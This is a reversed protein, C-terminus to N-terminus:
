EIVKEIPMVLIGSANKEKLRDITEWFEDEQIVTAISVMDPNSLPTITPSDLSPLITSIEEIKNKPANMIIYKTKKARIVSEMRMIVKELSLSKEQSINPNSILVAESHFITERVQLGNNKLTSGTSVLDCVLDAIGLKPAIEVSGSLDVLDAQLNKQDLYSQLIRPYSTAIRTNQLSSYEQYEPSAICLKCKGFGLSLRETLSYGSEVLTNQGCIGIEAIGDAVIEPIDGSRLFLIELPFNKVTASLSRATKQFDFGANKLLALSEESLRGKSQIAIKM